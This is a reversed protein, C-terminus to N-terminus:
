VGMLEVQKTGEFEIARAWAEALAGMVYPVSELNRNKNRDNGKHKFGITHMFEHVFNGVYDEVQLSNLKRSNVFIYNPKSAIAYGIAKSWPYKPKYLEVIIFRDPLMLAATLIDAYIESRSLTTHTFAEPLDNINLQKFFNQALRAAEKLKKNDSNVVFTIM